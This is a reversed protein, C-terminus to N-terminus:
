LNRNHYNSSEGLSRIRELDITNNAIPFQGIIEPTKQRCLCEQKLDTEFSPSEKKSKFVLPSEFTYMYCGCIPLYLNSEERGSVDKPSVVYIEANFVSALAFLHVTSASKWDTLQKGFSEKSLQKGLKKQVNESIHEEANGLQMYVQIFDDTEVHAKIFDKVDRENTETGYIIQAFLDFINTMEESSDDQYSSKSFSLFEKELLFNRVTHFQNCFRKDLCKSHKRNTITLGCDIFRDISEDCRIFHVNEGEFRLFLILPTDNEDDKEHIVPEIEIGRFGEEECEYMLVVSRAIVESVAYCERLSPAVTNKRINRIDRKANEIWSEKPNKEIQPKFLAFYFLHKEEYASIHKRCKSTTMDKQILSGVISYLENNDSSAQLTSVRRRLDNLISERDNM